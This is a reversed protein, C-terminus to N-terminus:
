TGTKLFQRLEERTVGIDEILHDTPKALLEALTRQAHRRARFQAWAEPATLGNWLHLTPILNM